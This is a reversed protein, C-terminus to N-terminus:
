LGEWLINKGDEYGCKMGLRVQPSGTMPDEIGVSLRYGKKLLSTVKETAFLTETKVKEGPLVQPLEIKVQPKEVIEGEPNELYLYTKWAGYFPAAGDNEWTLELLNRRWRAKSIWLRYGMNKLLQDYGEKYAREAVNPGLFTTHSLRLLEITEKVNTQLLEEMPLSSTLEGGSPAKKWFDPMPCMANEEMTQNYTGGEQIWKLWEKTDEKKGAVDNYLGMSYTNAISFPRRMLFFAKPFAELWSTVYQNRVQEKPMRKIGQGYNVHWEGWHGLSGLEIFSILGDKGLHEGMAQVARSHYRILLENNYDPAFGRGYTGEYWTGDRGTKEYLWKPIDMHPKDGPIDCVFRLVLHKGEKRWRDLQNDREITEWDFVGEEPELEAWTIDMYLLFIDQSIELNWAGPVYGMFPNGFAEESKQFQKRNEKGFKWM